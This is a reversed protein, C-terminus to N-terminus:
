LIRIAQILNSAATDLHRLSIRQGYGTFFTVVLNSKLNRYLTVIKSIFVGPYVIKNLPHFSLDLTEFALLKDMKHGVASPRFFARFGHANHLYQYIDRFYMVCIIVYCIELNATKKTNNLHHLNKNM